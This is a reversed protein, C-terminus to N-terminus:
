CNYFIYRARSGPRLFGTLPRGERTTPRMGRSALRRTNDGTVPRKFSTGPRPANAIGVEDLLIEAIGEDEMETDDIWNKAILSKTKIYWIAQDKYNKNLLIDCSEIAQDYRRRRYRSLALIAHDVQCSNPEDAIHNM